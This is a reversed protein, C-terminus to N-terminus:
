VSIVKSKVQHATDVFFNCFESTFAAIGLEKYWDTLALSLTTFSLGTKWLVHTDAAKMVDDRYYSPRSALILKSTSRCAQRYAQRDAPTRHDFYRNKRISTEGRSLSDQLLLYNTEHSVKRVTRICQPALRDLGATVDVDLKQVTSDIDGRFTTSASHRHFYQVSCNDYKSNGTPM